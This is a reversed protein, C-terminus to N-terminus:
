ILEAHAEVNTGATKFNRIADEIKAKRKEYSEKTEALRLDIKGLHLHIYGHVRELERYRANRTGRRLVNINVGINELGHKLNNLAQPREEVYNGKLMEIRGAVAFAYPYTAEKKTAERTYGLAIKRLEVGKDFSPEWRHKECYLDALYSWEFPTRSRQEELRKIEDEVMQKLPKTEPDKAEAIRSFPLISGLTWAAAGAATGKAAGELFGRRSCRGNELFDAIRFFINDEEPKRKPAKDAM